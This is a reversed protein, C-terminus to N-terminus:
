LVCFRRAIEADNFPTKKDGIIQTKEHGKGAILLLDGEQLIGVAYKIAEARDGIEKANKCNAIIEKRIEAADEFRPNDDTVIVVDAMKDAIGGMIPRKGKDRNGGCGFVVILRKKTHHRLASLVKELADPTHAYDVIIPASNKAAVKEMRGPVASIKALASFAKEEGLGSSIVMGLACLINSAQFAGLLELNLDYKKNKTKVRMKQGSATPTLELLKLDEGKEGFSIFKRKNKRCFDAIESYEEIDANIVATGNKDLLDTFARKKAAFYNEFTGHYDLHDRTINTFGVSSATIGALRWQDLGHSSAEMALNALKEDALKAVNEHLFVVEPTTLNDGMGSKEYDADDRIIGLTGISASKLGAINWIQRCFHVVSTKGNTGTVAVINEPKRAYFNAAIIGLAHRPDEVHIFCVKDQNITSLQHNITIIAIAGNKIADNIFSLGDAKAGPLAAFLFGEKCKRSDSTIGKIDLPKFEQPFSVSLGKLLDTLLM